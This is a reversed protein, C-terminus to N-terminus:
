NFFNLTKKILSIKKKIPKKEFGNIFVLNADLTKAVFNKKNKNKLYDKVNIKFRTNKFCGCIFIDLRDESDREELVFESPMAVSNTFKLIKNCKFCKASKM